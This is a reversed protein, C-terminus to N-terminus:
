IGMLRTAIIVRWDFIATKVISLPTKHRLATCVCCTGLTRGVFDDAEYDHKNYRILKHDEVDDHCYRCTHWHNCTSCQLKAGRRYHKCGLIGHPEDHYTKAKDKESVEGDQFQELQAGKLRRQALLYGETMLEQM